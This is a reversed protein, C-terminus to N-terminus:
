ETEGNMAYRLFARAKCWDRKVTRGSRGLLDGTEEVSLGAFFRLEVVRALQPDAEELAEIARELALVDIVAEAEGGPGDAAGDAVEIGVRHLGGGRKWARRRRAHDVIIQRMARAAVSFFHRRDQLEIPSGGVLKLYAEHVLVTTNLTESRERAALHHATVCLEEYVRAFLRDMTFREGARAEVLLRTIEGEVAM